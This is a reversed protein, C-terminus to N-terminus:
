QMLRNLFGAVLFSFVTWALLGLFVGAAITLVSNSDLSVPALRIRTPPAPRFVERAEDAGVIEVRETNVLGRRIATNRAVAESSCEVDVSAPNGNEDVGHVRFIPM